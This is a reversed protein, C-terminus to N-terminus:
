GYADVRWLWNYQSMDKHNLVESYIKPMFVHNRHKIVFVIFVEYTIQEQNKVINHSGNGKRVNNM